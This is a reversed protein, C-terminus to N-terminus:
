DAEDKFRDEYELEANLDQPEGKLTNVSDQLQKLDRKYM